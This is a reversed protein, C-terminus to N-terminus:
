YAKVPKPAPNGIVLRDEKEIFVDVAPVCGPISGIARHTVSGQHVGYMEEAVVLTRSPWFRNEM